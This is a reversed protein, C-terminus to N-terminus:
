RLLQWNNRSEYIYINIYYFDPQKIIRETFYSVLFIIKYQQKAILLDNKNIINNNM